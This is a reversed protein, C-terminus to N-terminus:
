ITRHFSILKLRQDIFFFVQIVKLSLYMLLREPHVQQWLKQKIKWPHRRNRPSLSRMHNQGLVNLLFRMTQLYPHAIIHPCKTKSLTLFRHALPNMVLNPPNWLKQFSSIKWLTLHKKQRLLKRLDGLTWISLSPLPLLALTKSLPLLFPARLPGNVSSFNPLNVKPMMKGQLSLILLTRHGVLYNLHPPLRERMTSTLLAPLHRHLLYLSPKPTM